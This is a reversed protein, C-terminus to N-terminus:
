PAILRIMNWILKSKELNFIQLTVKKWVKLMIDSHELHMFVAPDHAHIMCQFHHISTPSDTHIIGYGVQLYIETGACRLVDTKIQSVSKMSYKAMPDPGRSKRFMLPSRECFTEYQNQIRSSSDPLRSHSTLSQVAGIPIGARPPDDKMEFADVLVLSEAIDAMSVNEATANGFCHSLIVKVIEWTRVEDNNWLKSIARSLYEDVEKINIAAKRHRTVWGRFSEVVSVYHSGLFDRM